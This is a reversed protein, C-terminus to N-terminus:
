PHPPYAAQPLAVNCRLTYARVETEETFKPNETKIKQALGEQDIKEYLPLPSPSFDEEGEDRCFEAKVM